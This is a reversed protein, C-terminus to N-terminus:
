TAEFVTASAGKLTVPTSFLLAELTATRRTVVQVRRKTAPLGDAPLGNITFCDRSDTSVSEAGGSDTVIRSKTVDNSNALGNPYVYSVCVYRGSKGTTLSGSSANVTIDSVCKLWQDLDSSGSASPCPSTAVPLTAGYRAGERAATGIDQKTNFAIGGTLSGLVICMLAPLTLAFEIVAAGSEGREGHWTRARAAFKQCRKAKPADRM